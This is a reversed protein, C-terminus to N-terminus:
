RHALPTAPPHATSCAAMLRRSRQGALPSCGRDALGAQSILTGGEGGAGCAVHVAVHRAQGGLAAVGHTVDQDAHAGLGVQVGGDEGSLHTALWALAKCAPGHQAAASCLMCEQSTRSSAHAAAQRAPRRGGRSQLHQAALRQGGVGRLQQGGDGLLHVDRQLLGAAPRHVAFTPAGPRPLCRRSTQTAPHVRPETPQNNACRAFCARGGLTCRMCDLASCCHCAPFRVPSSGSARQPPVQGAGSGARGAASGQLARGSGQQCAPWGPPTTLPGAGPALM